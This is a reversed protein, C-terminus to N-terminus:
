RMVVVARDAYVKIVNSGGAEANSLMERMQEISLDIVAIPEPENVALIVRESM